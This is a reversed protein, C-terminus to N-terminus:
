SKGSLSRMNVQNILLIILQLRESYIKIDAVGKKMSNVEFLCWALFSFYSYVNGSSTPM